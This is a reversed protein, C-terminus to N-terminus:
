MIHLRVFRNKWLFMNTVILYDMVLDYVFTKITYYINSVNPDNLIDMYLTINLYGHINYTM